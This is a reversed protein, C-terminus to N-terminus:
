PCTEDYFSHIVAAAATLEQQLMREHQAISNIKLQGSALAAVVSRAGEFDYHFYDRYRAIDHTIPTLGTMDHVEANPESLFLDIIARETRLAGNVARSWFESLYVPSFLFVFRVNRNARVIPLVLERYERAEPTDLPGLDYEAQRTLRDVDERKVRNRIRCAEDHRSMPLPNYTKWKAITDVWGARSYDSYSKPLVAEWLVSSNFLYCYPPLLLYYGGYMCRPFDAFRFEALVTQRGISWYVTKVSRTQLALKGVKSDENLTSGWLSLNVVKPREPFELGDFM